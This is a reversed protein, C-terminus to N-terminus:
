SLFPFERTFLRIYICILLTKQKTWVHRDRSKKRLFSNLLFFHLFSPIILWSSQSRKAGEHELDSSSTAILTVFFYRNRIVDPSKLYKYDKSEGSFFQLIDQRVFINDEHVQKSNFNVSTIDYLSDTFLNEYLSIRAIADSGDVKVAFFDM